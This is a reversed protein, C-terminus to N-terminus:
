KNIEDVIEDLKKYIENLQNNVNDQYRENSLYKKQSKEVNKPRKIKEIKKMKEECFYLANM